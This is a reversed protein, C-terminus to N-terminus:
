SARIIQSSSSVDVQTMHYQLMRAVRMQLAIQAQVDGEGVVPDAKKPFFRRMLRNM